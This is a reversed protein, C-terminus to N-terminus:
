VKNKKKGTLFILLHFIPSLKPLQKLYRCMAFTLHEADTDSFTGRDREEFVEDGGFLVLLFLPASLTCTHSLPLTSSSLVM